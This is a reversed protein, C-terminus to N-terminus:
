GRGRAVWHGLIRSCCLHTRWALRLGLFPPAQVQQNPWSCPRPPKIINSNRPALTRPKWRLIFGAELAGMQSIIVGPYTPM